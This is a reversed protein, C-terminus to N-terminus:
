SSAESGKERLTRIFARLVACRPLASVGYTRLVWASGERSRSSHMLRPTAELCTCVRMADEISSRARSQYTTTCINIFAGIAAADEDSAARIQIDAHM